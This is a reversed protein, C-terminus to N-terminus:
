TNDIGIRSTWKRLIGSEKTYEISIDPSKTTSMSDFVTNQPFLLTIAFRFDVPSSGRRADVGVLPLFPSPASGGGINAIKVVSMKASPDM